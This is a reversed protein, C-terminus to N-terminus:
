PHHDLICIKSFHKVEYKKFYHLKLVFSTQKSRAWAFLPYTSFIIAMIDTIDITEKVVTIGM